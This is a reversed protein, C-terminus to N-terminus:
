IRSATYSYYSIGLESYYKKMDAQTLAAALGKPELNRLRDVAGETLSKPTSGWRSVLLTFDAIAAGILADSGSMLPPLDFVIRDYRSGFQPLLDRLQKEGFDYFGGDASGAPMLDFHQGINRIIADCDAAGGLYGILGKDTSSGGYLRYLTPRNFDCDILLVSKGSAAWAAALSVAMSSKGEHSVASVVAISKCGTEETGNLHLDIMNRIGRLASAYTSLTKDGYSNKQVHEVAWRYFHRQKPVYPTVGFVRLGFIREFERDTLGMGFKRNHLVVVFIGSIVLSVPLLLILIIVQSIAPGLPPAAPDVVRVKPVQSNELMSIRTFGTLFTDYSSKASQSEASLRLLQSDLANEHQIDSYLSARDQRLTVLRTKTADVDAQRVELILRGHHALERQLKDLQDRNQVLQPSNEQYRGDLETIHKRIQSQLDILSRAMSFGAGSEPQMAAVVEPKMARLEDLQIEKFALDANARGEEVSLDALTQMNPPPAGSTPKLLNHQSRFDQVAQDAAVVKEGLEDLRSQLPQITKHIAMREAEVQDKLYAAVIANAAAAAYVPDDAQFSVQILSSSHPVTASLHRRFHSIIEEEKTRDSVASNLLKTRVWQMIGDIMKRAATDAAKGDSTREALEPHDALMSIITARSVIMDVESALVSPEINETMPVDSINAQSVASIMARIPRVDYALLTTAVYKKPLYSSAVALGIFIAIAFGFFLYRRRSLAHLFSRGPDLAPAELMLATERDAPLNPKKGTTLLSM